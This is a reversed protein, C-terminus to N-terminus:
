NKRRFLNLLGPVYASVIVKAEEQALFYLESATRPLLNVAKQTNENWPAHTKRLYDLAQNGTRM